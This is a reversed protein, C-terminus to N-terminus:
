RKLLKEAEDAYRWRWGGKDALKFETVPRLGFQRLLKLEKETLTDSVDTEITATERYPYAVKIFAVNGSCCTEIDELALRLLRKLNDNQERLQQLENTQSHILADSASEIRERLSVNDATCTGIVHVIEGCRETETQLFSDADILKGIM